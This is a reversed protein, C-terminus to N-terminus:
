IWTYFNCTTLTTAYANIQLLIRVLAEALNKELLPDTLIKLYYTYRSPNSQSPLPPTITMICRAPLYSCTNRANKSRSSTIYMKIRFLVKEEPAGWLTCCKLWSAVTDGKICRLILESKM